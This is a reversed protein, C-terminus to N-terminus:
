NKILIHLTIPNKFADLLQALKMNCADGSNYVQIMETGLIPRAQSFRSFYPADLLGEPRAWQGM